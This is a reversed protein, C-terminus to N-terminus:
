KSARTPALAFYVALATGFVFYSTWLFITLLSPPEFVLAGSEELSAVIRLAPGGLNTVRIYIVATALLYLGAVSIRLGLKLRDGVVYGAVIVAFTITIWYQFQGDIGAAAQLYLESLEAATYQDKLKPL